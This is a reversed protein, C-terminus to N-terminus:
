SRHGLFAQKFQRERYGVSGWDIPVTGSRVQRRMQYIVRSEQLLQRLDMVMLVSKFLTDTSSTLLAKELYM